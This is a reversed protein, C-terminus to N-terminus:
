NQEESSPVSTQLAQLFRPDRLCSVKVRRMTQAYHGALIERLSKTKINLDESPKPGMPCGGVVGDSQIYILGNRAAPCGGVVEERGGSTDILIMPYDSEVDKVKQSFERNMESTLALENRPSCGVPDAYAFYFGLMMGFDIMQAVFEASSVDKYNSQYATSAFGSAAGYKQLNEAARKISKWANPNRRIRNTTSELGPINIMTIVNGLEAAEKAYAEDLLIGNTAVIFPMRKYKHFLRFLNEKDLLPEGGLIITLRSALSVSEGSAKDLTEFDLKGKDRSAFCGLCRPQANCDSNIQMALYHFFPKGEKTLYHENLTGLAFNVLLFDLLVTRLYKEGMLGLTRKVKRVLNTDEGTEISTQLETRLAGAIKSEFVREQGPLLLRNIGELANLRKLLVQTTPAIRTKDAPDRLSRIYVSTGLELVKHIPESNLAAHVLPNQGFSAVVTPLFPKRERGEIIKTM